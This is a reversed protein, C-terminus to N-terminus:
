VIFRRKGGAFREAFEEMATIVKLLDERSPEASRLEGFMKGTRYFQALGGDPILDLYALLFFTYMASQINGRAQGLSRAFSGKSVRGKERLGSKFELNGETESALLTDLQAETLNSKQLLFNAVLDQKIEKLMAIEAGLANYM